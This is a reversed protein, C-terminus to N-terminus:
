DDGSWDLHRLRLHEAAEPGREPHQKLDLYAQLPHVCRIGDRHGTGFFVGSDDPLVLWTNAGRQGPRFGMDEETGRDPHESVFITATRFGAFGDILWAASLGTVGYEIGQGELVSSVISTVEMGSRAAVHGQTVSHHGFDYAEQWADLLLDPDGAYVRGESDREILRGAELRGVIRSTYGEDVGTRESLERQSVARGPHMLLWRTIRSSKPAFLNSPRGRRPYRNPQGLIRIRLGEASIDANGSLDLWSIGAERCRERGADAMYPVALLPVAHNWRSSEQICSQLTDAARAISAVKGSSRWEILFLRGDAGVAADPRHKGGDPLPERTLADRDAELLESLRAMVESLAQERTYAKM